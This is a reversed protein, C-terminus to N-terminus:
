EIYEHSLQDFQILCVVNKAVSMHCDCHSITVMKVILKPICNDRTCLCWELASYNSIFTTKITLPLKKNTDCSSAFSFKTQNSNKSFQALIISKTQIFLAFIHKFERIAIHSIHSDKSVLYNKKERSMTSVHVIWNFNSKKGIFQRLANIWTTSLLIFACLNAHM